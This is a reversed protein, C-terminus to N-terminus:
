VDGNHALVTDRAYGDICSRLGALTWDINRIHHHINARKSLRVTEAESAHLGKLPGSPLARHLFYATHTYRDSPLRRFFELENPFRVDSVNVYLIQKPPASRYGGMPETSKDADLAVKHAADARHLLAKCWIEADLRRGWETGLTQLAYRPTINTPAVSNCRACVLWLWTENVPPRLLAAGCKMCANSKTYANYPTNRKASSGYLDEKSFLPFALEVMAKLPKALAENVVAKGHNLILADTMMDAATSKGAGAAGCFLNFHIM